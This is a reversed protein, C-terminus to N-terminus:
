EHSSLPFIHSKRVLASFYTIKPGGQVPGGQVPGGQVPGGQVPGGQVPGGQVPGGQSASASCEPTDIDHPFPAQLQCFVCEIITTWVLSLYGHVWDVVAPLVKYVLVFDPHTKYPVFHPLRYEPYELHLMTHCASGSVPGPPAASFGFDLISIQSSM